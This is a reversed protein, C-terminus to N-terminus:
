VSAEREFRYWTTLGAGIAFSLDFLLQVGFRGVSRPWAPDGSAWSEAIQGAWFVVDPILLILLAVVFVRAAPLRTGGDPVGVIRPASVLLAGVAAGGAIATVMSTLSFVDRVQSWDMM